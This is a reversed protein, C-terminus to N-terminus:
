VTFGLAMCSIPIDQLVINFELEINGKNIGNHESRELSGTTQSTCPKRASTPPVNQDGPSGSLYAHFMEWMKYNIDM